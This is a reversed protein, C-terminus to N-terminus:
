DNMNFIKNERVCQELEDLSKCHNILYYQKEKVDEFKTLLENFELRGDFYKQVYNSSIKNEWVASFIVKYKKCFARLISLEKGTPKYKHSGSIYKYDGHLEIYGDAFEPSKNPNWLIKLRIGHQSHVANKNSFYFSFPLRHELKVDNGVVNAMEMLVASPEKLYWEFVRKDAEDLFWEDKLQPMKILKM